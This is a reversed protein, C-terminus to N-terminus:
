KGEEKEKTAALIAIAKDCAAAGWTGPKPKNEAPYFFCKYMEELAAWLEAKERRLTSILKVYHNITKASVVQTMEHEGEPGQTYSPVEDELFEWVIMRKAENLERELSEAEHWLAQYGQEVAANCRPTDSAAADNATASPDSEQAVTPKVIFGEACNFCCRLNGLQYWHTGKCKPCLDRAEMATADPKEETNENM